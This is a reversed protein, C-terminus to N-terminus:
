KVTKLIQPLKFNLITGVNTQSVIEYSGGLRELEEIICAFGLGHQMTLTNALEMGQGDDEIALNIVGEQEHIRCTVNGVELKGSQLRMPSTEIGHLVANRFVHILTQIFLIYDEKDVTISTADLICTNVKKAHARALTEVYAPFTELLASIPVCRLQIIAPIIQKQLPTPLLLAAAKELDHIRSIEISIAENAHILKKGLIKELQTLEDNLWQKITERDIIESLELLNNTNDECNLALLRDELLHLKSVLDTMEFISFNGKLTHINKLLEIKITELPLGFEMLTPLTHRYFIRYSSVCESFDDNHTVVKVIKEFHNNQLEIEKELAYKETIDNLIVMVLGNNQARPQYISKYYIQLTRHNIVIEDPLLSLYLDLRKGLPNLRIKEYVEEVYVRTEEDLGLVECFHHGAINYGFLTRCRASYEELVMMQGDLSIFGQDANDLLNQISHARQQVNKELVENWNELRDRAIKVESWMTEKEKQLLQIERIFNLSFILIQLVTAFEIAYTTVVNESILGLYKMGSMIVTIYFLSLALVYYQASHNKKKLSLIGGAFLTLCFLIRFLFNFGNNLYISVDILNIINLQNLSVILLACGITIWSVWSMFRHYKPLLEKTKLFSATFSTLSYIGLTMVIYIINKEFWPSSPWLYQFGFGNEYAQAIMYFFIYSGYFLIYKQRIHRYLILHYIVVIMLFGYFLGYIMLENETKNLFATPSWIDLPFNVSGFGTSELRIYYTCTANPPISENFVFNRHDVDREKVPSFHSSSKLTYSGNNTPSYVVLQDIRPYSLELYFPINSDAINSLTFRIWYTGVKHGLNNTSSPNFANRLAGSTVEDITWLGNHDELIEIHNKISTHQTTRDIKLSSQASVLTSIFLLLTLTLIKKKM